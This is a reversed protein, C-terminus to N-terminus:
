IYIQTIKVSIQKFLLKIDTTCSIQNESRILIFIYVYNQLLLCGGYKNLYISVTSDQEYCIICHEFSFPYFSVITWLICCLFCFISRFRSFGSHLILQEPIIFLEHVVLPVQGTVRALIFTLSPANLFPPELSVPLMKRLVCFM